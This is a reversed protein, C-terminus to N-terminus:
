ARMVTRRLIVGIGLGMVLLGLTSPEPSAIDSGSSASGELGAGFPVPFAGPGTYADAPDGSSPTAYAFWPVIAPAVDDPVEVMFGSLSTGSLLLTYDSSDSWFNNYFISSGGYYFNTLSDFPGSPDYGAPSGIIGPASLDVGFQYIDQVAGGTMNNTVTFNLDWAGPSGSVAYTVDIVGASAVSCAAFVVGVLVVLRIMDNRGKVETIDRIFELV